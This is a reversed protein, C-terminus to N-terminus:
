FFKLLDIKTGATAIAKTSVKLYDATTQISSHGMLVQITRLDVGAELMHTAFCHRLTHFCVKKTLGSKKVARKWAHYAMEKGAAVDRSSGYFLYTSPRYKL